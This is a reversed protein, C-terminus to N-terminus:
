GPVANIEEKALSLHSYPFSSLAFHNLLGVEVKELRWLLSNLGEPISTNIKSKWRSAQM